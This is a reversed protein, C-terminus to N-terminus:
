LPTLITNEAYTNQARSCNSPITTTRGNETRVPRLIYPYPTNHRRYTGDQNRFHKVNEERLSEVEAVILPDGEKSKVNKNLLAVNYVVSNGTLQAKLAEDFPLEEHVFPIEEAPIQTVSPVPESPSAKLPINESPTPTPEIDTPNDEPNESPAPEASEEPLNEEQPIASVNSQIVTEMGVSQNEEALIIRAPLM